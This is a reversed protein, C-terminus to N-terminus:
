NRRAQGDTLELSYSTNIHLLIHRHIHTNHVHTYILVFIYSYIPTHTFTYIHTDIQSTIFTLTHTHM